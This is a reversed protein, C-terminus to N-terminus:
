RKEKLAKFNQVAFYDSQDRSSPANKILTVTYNFDDLLSALTEALYQFGRESLSGFLHDNIKQREPGIQAVQEWGLQTLHLLVGRGDNPNRHKEILGSSELNIGEAAIFATSVHLRRAVDSVSIGKGGGNALVMIINYQPSTLELLSALHSRVIELSVGLTSFDYLFQRFRHDTKGQPDLLAPSSVSPIVRRTRSIPPKEEGDIGRVKKKGSGRRTKRSTVSSM